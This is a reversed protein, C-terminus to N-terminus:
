PLGDWILQQPTQGYQDVVSGPYGSYTGTSDAAAALAEGFDVLALSNTPFGAAIDQTITVSVGPVQDTKAANLAMFAEPNNCTIQRFDATKSDTFDYGQFSFAILGSAPDNLPTDAVRTDARAPSALQLKPPQRRPRRHVVTRRIGM